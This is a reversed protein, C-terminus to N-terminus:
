VEGPCFTLWVKELAASSWVAFGPPSSGERNEDTM